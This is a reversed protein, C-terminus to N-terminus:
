IALTYAVETGSMTRVQQSIALLFVQRTQHVTPVARGATGGTGLHTRTAPRKGGDHSIATRLTTVMTGFSAFGEGVVRM